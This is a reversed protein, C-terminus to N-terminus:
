PVLEPPLLFLNVTPRGDYPDLRGGRYVFPAYGLPALLARIEPTQASDELLLVPRRRALTEMLGRLVPLEFGQVDVKVYDPELGLDDLRRVPVEVEAIRVSRGRAEPLYDVSRGDAVFERDLSAEGTLPTAGLLPVHLTATGDHEGAAVMRYDFRRLLRRLRRLDPEHAPNPEISLIPARRNHVRFSLASLGGNAGVDLFLGNREPWWGFVAFDPEHARRALFRALVWARRAAAYARPMRLLLRKLATM